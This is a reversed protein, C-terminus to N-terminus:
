RDARETFSGSAHPIALSNRLWPLDPLPRAPPPEEEDDEVVHWGHEVSAVARERIAVLANEDLEGLIQAVKKGRRKNKQMQEEFLPAPDDPKAMPEPLPPEPVPLPVAVLRPAVAEASHRDAAHSSPPPTPKRKRRLLSRPTM